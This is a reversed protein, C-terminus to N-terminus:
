EGGPLGPPGPPGEEAATGAGRHRRGRGRGGRRRRRRRQLDADASDAGNPSGEGSPAEDGSELRVAEGVVDEASAAGGNTVASEPVTEGVPAVPEAARGRRRGRPAREAGPLGLKRMEEITGVYFSYTSKARMFARYERLDEGLLRGETLDYLANGAPLVITRQGERTTHITLWGDGAFVYDEGGQTYLHAGAYRCLGRFFDDSLFPEGCFVSRWGQMDRVAVSPLGSQTYEGLVTISKEDDDVYFSPNLRERSGLNRDQIQQTIGHRQDTIRTGIESHWPQLRLTIGVLEHATEEPEGREACIGPAYMWVLTKGDRQLKEAIATRQESTIRYPNLFVYLKAGTPFNRATVDNQLYFAVSAGSRQIRDRQEQLLKRIFGEGKQLHLLSKEDVLIVVDPSWARRLKMFEAYRRSFSGVRDWIDDSDLWGEGWLDMWAIATQHALATGVARAHVQETATRNDIRPNYDDPSPNAPALYTKTDDESLWLKGHVGMSGAPSPLSGAGGPHRDKYSPPGAVIDITPASVVRGLALHGSFTHGFEFTYGYCVSVLAKNSSAQKVIKSLSVLRDATVDSTYELFDIWRREKRPEYFAIEPRPSGPLPPIEVTYFQVQGDFWSARLAAESNKYKARLWTRFAERNAFSRDYGGDAPHFWEGRELHYGIVRDGYAMRHIHEIVARLSHEAEVWFRDSAISPDDTSGDAYHNVENPYQKRWGPAPVFVIRPMVYGKPDADLIATLRADLTEYVTDDPPLPCTLEVLTSHLHVGHAAARQVESVVRRTEKEGEVNGFFFVPAYPQGNIHLEVLGRRTVLRAGKSLDEAPEAKRRAGRKPKAEVEEAPGAFPPAEAVAPLAEAPAEEETKRRRGGRRRSPREPQAAPEEAEVPPAAEAVPAELELSPTVAEPKGRRGGRRRSPRQPKVSPNEDVSTPAEAPVSPEVVPAEVEVSRSVPEAKRSRGGRRRAPKEPAAVPAEAAVPPSVHPDREPITGIDAIQAAAQASEAPTTDAPKAAAKGPRRAPRRANVPAAKEVVIPPATDPLDGVPAAVEPPAASEDAVPTPKARTRPSRSSPSRRRRTAPESQEAASEARPAEDGPTAAHQAAVDVPSEDNKM